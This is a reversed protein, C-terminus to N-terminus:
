VAKPKLCCHYSCQAVGPKIFYIKETFKYIINIFIFVNRLFGFYNNEAKFPKFKTDITFSHKWITVGEELQLNLKDPIDMGPPVTEWPAISILFPIQNGLM